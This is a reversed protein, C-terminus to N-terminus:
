PAQDVLKAIVVVHSPSYDKHMADRMVFFRDDLSGMGGGFLQKAAPAVDPAHSLDARHDLNPLDYVTYKNSSGIVFLKNGNPSVIAHHTLTPGAVKRDIKQAALDVRAIIGTRSSALYVYKGDRLFAV